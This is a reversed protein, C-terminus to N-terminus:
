KGGTAAHSAGLNRSNGRGSVATDREGGDALRDAADSAPDANRLGELRLRRAELEALEHALHRERRSPGSGWIPGFIADGFIRGFYAALADELAHGVSRDRLLRQLDRKDAHVRFALESVSLGPHCALYDSVFGAVREGRTPANVMQDTYATRNANM